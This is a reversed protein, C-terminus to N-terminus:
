LQIGKLKVFAKYLEQMPLEKNLSTINKSITLLDKRQLPGTLSHDKLNKFNNLNIQLYHDLASGPINWNKFKTNVLSWLIIPFNGAIVCYAHYLSKEEESLVSFSNPLFPMLDSLKLTDGEPKFQSSTTHTIVFHIKHYDELPYLTESFSMLPHCGFVQPHSLAGSFHIWIKNPEYFKEVFPIIASDSIALFIRDANKIQTKFESESQRHRSINEFPVDLLSLYHSFHRAMKGNGIILNKLLSASPLRNNSIENMKLPYRNRQYNFDLGQASVYCM